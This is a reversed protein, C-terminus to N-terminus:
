LEFVILNKDLFSREIKGSLKFCIKRIDHKLSLSFKNSKDYKFPLEYEAVDDFNAKLKYVRQIYVKSQVTLNTIREIYWLCNKLKKYDLLEDFNRFNIQFDNLRNGASAERYFFDSEGAPLIEGPDKVWVEDKKYGLKSLLALTLEEYLNIDKYLKIRNTYLLRNLSENNYKIYTDTSDESYEFSKFLSNFNNIKGYLHDKFNSTLSAGIVRFETINNNHFSNIVAIRNQFPSKYYHLKNIRSINKAIVKQGKNVSLLHLNEKNHFVDYIDGNNKLPFFQKLTENAEFLSYNKILKNIKKQNVSIFDNFSKSKFLINEKYLISDTVLSQIRVSYVSAKSNKKIKVFYMIKSDKSWAHVKFCSM